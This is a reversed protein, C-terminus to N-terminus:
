PMTYISGKNKQNTINHENTAIKDLTLSALFFEEQVPQGKFM